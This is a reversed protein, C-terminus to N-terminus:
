WLCLFSAPLRAPFTCNSCCFKKFTQHIKLNCLFFNVEIPLKKFATVLHDAAAAVGVLAVVKDPRAIAAHLMLWGGM